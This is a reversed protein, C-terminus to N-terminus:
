TLSFLNLSILPLYPPIILPILPFSRSSPPIIFFLPPASSHPLLFFISPYFHPHFSSHHPSYTTLSLFLPYFSSITQTLLTYFLYTHSFYLSFSLFLLTSLSILNFLPQSLSSSHITLSFFSHSSPPLSFSSSQLPLFLM